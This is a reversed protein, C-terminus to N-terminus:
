RCDKYKFHREELHCIMLNRERTQCNQAKLQKTWKYTAKSITPNFEGMKTVTKQVDCKNKAEKSRTQRRQNKISLKYSEGNNEITEGQYIM